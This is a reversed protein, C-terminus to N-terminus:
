RREELRQVIVDLTAAGSDSQLIGLGTAGGPALFVENWDGPAAETMREAEEAAGEGESAVFLKPFVGLQSVNGRASLTILQDVLEPQAAGLGFAATSGSGAAMVAVREIGGAQLERIAAEASAADPGDIAVVTMGEDALVRATAAWSAAGAADGPILVVGYGGDGWRRASSGDPLPYPSGDTPEAPEATCAAWALTLLLCLALGLSQPRLALRKM